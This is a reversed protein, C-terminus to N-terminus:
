RTLDEEAVRERGANGFCRGNVAIGAVHHDAAVPVAVADVGQTDVAVAREVELVSRDLVTRAVPETGCILCKREAHSPEVRQGPEEHRLDAGATEVDDLRGLGCTLEGRQECREICGAEVVGEPSRSRERHEGWRVIRKIGEWVARDFGQETIEIRQGADQLVVHYGALNRRGLHDLEVAHTNLGDATLQHPDIHLVALDNEIVYGLHDDGVDIGRIADNMHDIRNQHRLVDHLRRRRTVVEIRQDSGHRSRTKSVGQRRRIARIRHESRGIVGKRRQRITNNVAKQGIDRGELTHQLIVHRGTQQRGGLHDLEVAHTSLGDATLQHPDLQLVALDVDVVASTTMVSM